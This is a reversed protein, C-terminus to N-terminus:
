QIGYYSALPFGADTMGMTLMKVKGSREDLKKWWDIIEPYVPSEMGNSQEFRTTITQASAICYSLILLCFISKRMFIIQLM